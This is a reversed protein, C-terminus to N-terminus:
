VCCAQPHTDCISSGAPLCRKQGVIATAEVGACGAIIIAIAALLTQRVFVMVVEPHPLSAQRRLNYVCPGGARASLFLVGGQMCVTMTACAPAHARRV